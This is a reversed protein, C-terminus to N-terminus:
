VVGAGRKVCVGGFYASCFDVGGRGGSGSGADQM